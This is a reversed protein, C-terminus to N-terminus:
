ADYKILGVEDYVSGDINSIFQFRFSESDATMRAYGWMNAHAVDFINSGTSNNNDSNLLDSFGCSELSAGASGVVAHVTGFASSASSACTANSAIPCTREYSHQHGVLVLNVRYALLLPELAARLELSRDFDGDECLQTTYLMRHATLVIWPTEERNVSALDSELWSHQLSGPTVDHETSLTVVHVAGSDFSYWLVSSSAVDVGSKELAGSSGSGERNSAAGKKGSGNSPSRFRQVTPVGCEGGSASGTYYSQSWVLEHNGLSVLYPVRSSLPEILASWADWILTIGCGYALDGFHLVFSAGHDLVDRLAWSVTASAQQAAEAGMDGFGIFTVAGKKAKKGTKKTKIQNSSSSSSASEANNL